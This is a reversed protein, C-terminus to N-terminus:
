LLKRILAAIADVVIATCIVAYFGVIFMALWFSVPSESRSSEKGKLTVTGDRMGDWLKRWLFVSLVGIATLLALAVAQMARRAM